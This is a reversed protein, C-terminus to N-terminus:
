IGESELGLPLGSRTEYLYRVAIEIGTSARGVERDSARIHLAQLIANRHAPRPSGIDDWFAYREYGYLHNTYAAITIGNRTLIAASEDVTNPTPALIIAGESGRHRRIIGSIMTHGEIVGFRCRIPETHLTDQTILTYAIFATSLAHTPLPGAYESLYRMSGEIGGLVDSLKM